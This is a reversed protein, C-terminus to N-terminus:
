KRRPSRKAAFRRKRNGSRCKRNSCCLSFAREITSVSVLPRVADHIALLAGPKIYALGNKVSASRTSGGVAIEVRYHSFHRQQIEKWTSFHAEPLVLVINIEPDFQLFKEITWIIIPKGRIEIFQKPLDSNMRSGSGGAVIILSHM